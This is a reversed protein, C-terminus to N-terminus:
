QTSVQGQSRTWFAEQSQGSPGPSSPAWSLEGFSCQWPDMETNWSFTWLGFPLPALSQLTKMTLQPCSTADEKDWWWGYSETRDSFRATPKCIEKRWSKCKIPLFFSPHIFMKMNRRPSNCIFVHTDLFAMVGKERVKGPHAKERQSSLHNLVSAMEQSASYFFCTRQTRAKIGALPTIKHSNSLVSTM